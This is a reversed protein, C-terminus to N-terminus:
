GPRIVAFTGTATAVLRGDPGTLKAELHVVSRGAKVVSAVAEHVGRGGPRLFRLQVEISACYCGEDVVEMTAKGMATDVMAFLVAGHAVGNPNQHRENVDIRAVAGDPSDTMSMGLFEQLPFAVPAADSM